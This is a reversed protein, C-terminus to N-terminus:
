PIWKLIVEAQSDFIILPVHYDTLLLQGLPEEFVDSFVEKHVALYLNREPETRTIVSRYVFYQGIADAIDKETARSGLTWVSPKVMVEKTEYKM